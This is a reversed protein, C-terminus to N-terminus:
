ANVLVLLGNFVKCTLYKRCAQNHLFVHLWLRTALLAIGFIGTCLPTSLHLCNNKTVAQRQLPLTDPKRVQRTASTDLKDRLHSATTARKTHLTMLCGTKGHQYVTNLVQLWLSWVSLLFWLGSSAQRWMCLLPWSLLSQYSVSATTRSWNCTIWRTYHVACNWYVQVTLTPQQYSAKSSHIIVIKRM